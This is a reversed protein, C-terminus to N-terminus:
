IQAAQQAASIAEEIKGLMAMCQSLSSHAAPDAPAIELWRRYAQEAGAPDKAAMLRHGLRAQYISNNPEIQAAQQAASTADEIKGLVAMCLSLSSHAAPDAPAIELWRRYAQEAGAPDKAAM